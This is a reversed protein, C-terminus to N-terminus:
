DSLGAAKAGRNRQAAGTIPAVRREKVSLARPVRGVEAPQWYSRGAFRAAVRSRRKSLPRQRRHCVQTGRYQTTPPQPEMPSCLEQNQKLSPPGYQERVALDEVGADNANKRRRRNSHSHPTLWRRRIADSGDM